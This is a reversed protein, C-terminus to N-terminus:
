RRVYREILYGLQVFQRYQEMGIGVTGICVRTPRPVGFMCSRLPHSFGVHRHFFTLASDPMHESNAGHM